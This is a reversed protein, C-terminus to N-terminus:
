GSRVRPDLVGYLLDVILNIVIFSIFALTSLLVVVGGEKLQIAQFLFQGLGPLNFISETIPAGGMLVALDLGLITVIPVMANRLVHRGLVRNRPIGRATAAKM